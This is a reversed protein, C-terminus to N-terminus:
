WPWSEWIERQTGMQSFTFIEQGKRELNLKAPSFVQTFQNRWYLSEPLNQYSYEQKRYIGKRGTMTRKQRQRKHWKDYSSFCLASSTTKKDQEIDKAKHGTLISEPRWWGSSALHQSADPLWGLLSSIQSLFHCAANQTVTAARLPSQRLPDRDLLPKQWRLRQQRM